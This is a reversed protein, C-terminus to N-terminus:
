GHQLWSLIAEGRRRERWAVWLRATHFGLSVLTWLAVALFGAKPAGLMWFLTLLALNPNRRATITRFYYDLKRWTHIEIKFLALFLGEQLRGLVYGALIIVLAARLFPHSDALGLYWAWYWFPPHILDIGHDFIDGWRSSQITVRALKGDVTDLFTMIWACILGVGFWGRSFAVMAALVFLLSLATVQNPTIAWRACLRTVLFAPRPWLYKTVFDTAGKYSGRFLDWERARRQEPKVEPVCAPERKRLAADYGGSLESVERTALGQPLGAQAGALYALIEGRRPTEFIAAIPEGKEQLVVGRQGALAHLIPRTFLRDLRVAMEIGSETGHGIPAHIALTNLLRRLREEASLSFLQTGNDGLAWVARIDSAHIV